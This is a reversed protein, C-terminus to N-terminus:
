SAAAHDDSPRSDSAVPHTVGHLHIHIPPLQTQPQPQYQPQPLMEAVRSLAEDRAPPPLDAFLDVIAGIKMWTDCYFAKKFKDADTHSEDYFSLFNIDHLKAYHMAEMMMGDLEKIAEAKDSM